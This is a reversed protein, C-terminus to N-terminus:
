YPMDANLYEPSALYADVSGIAAGANFSACAADVGNGIAAGAVAGGIMGVAIGVPHGHSAMGGAVAGGIAFAMSAADGASFGRNCFYDNFSAIVSDTWDDGGSVAAVEKRELVRMSFNGESGRAM